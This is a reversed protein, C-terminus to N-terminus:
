KSDKAVYCISAEARGEPSIQHYIFTDDKYKSIIDDFKM